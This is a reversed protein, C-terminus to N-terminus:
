EWGELNFLTGSVATIFHTGTPTTPDSIDPLIRIPEMPPAGCGQCTCLMSDDRNMRGCYICEWPMVM